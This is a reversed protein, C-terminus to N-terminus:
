KTRFCKNSYKRLEFRKQEFVNTRIRACSVNMQEFGQAACLWNSVSANQFRVKDIYASTLPSITQKINHSCKLLTKCETIVIPGTLDAVRSNIRRIRVYYYPSGILKTKRQLKGAPAATNLVTIDQRCLLDIEPVSSEPEIGMLTNTPCPYCLEYLAYNPCIM